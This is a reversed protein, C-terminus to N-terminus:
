FCDFYISNFEDVSFLELDIGTLGDDKIGNILHTTTINAKLARLIAVKLPEKRLSMSDVFFRCKVSVVSLGKSLSLFAVRM